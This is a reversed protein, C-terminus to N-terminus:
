QQRQRRNAHARLPLSLPDAALENASSQLAGGCEAMPLSYGFTLFITVGGPYGQQFAAMVERGRQRVQKAYDDWAKLYQQAATFRNAHFAPVGMRTQPFRTTFKEGWNSQKVNEGLAFKIGPPAGEFKLEEPSPLKTESGDIPHLLLDDALIERFIKAMKMQQDLGCHIEMSLILPYPTVLFAFKSIVSVVDQFKISSGSNDPTDLPLM